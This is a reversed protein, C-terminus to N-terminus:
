GHQDLFFRTSAFSFLLRFPNSNSTDRGPLDRAFDRIIVHRERSAIIQFGYLPDRSLKGVGHMDGATIRPSLVFREHVGGPPCRTLFATV